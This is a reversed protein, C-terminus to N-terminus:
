LGKPRPQSCRKRYLLALGGLGLLAITAPEPIWGYLTDIESQTADPRLLTHDIYRALDLPVDEAPINPLVELRSKLETEVDKLEDDLTKIEDGIVAVKAKAAEVDGGDKVIRGIEKSAANKDAKM